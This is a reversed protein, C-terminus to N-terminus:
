RMSMISLAPPDSRASSRRLQSDGSAFTAYGHRSRSVDLWAKELVVKKDLQRELVSQQEDTKPRHGVPITTEFVARGLDAHFHEWRIGYVHIGAELCQMVGAKNQTVRRSADAVDLDQCPALM